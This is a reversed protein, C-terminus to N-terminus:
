LRVRGPLYGASEFGASHTLQNALTIPKDFAPPIQFTTLYRNVDTNLDLKGQEVLQMVATATFTKTVSGVHFLTSDPGVSRKKVVDRYGYGRSFVIRGDKVIVVVAGSVESSSADWSFLSDMVAAVTQPDLPRPSINEGMSSQACTPYIFLLQIAAVGWFCINLPNFMTDGLRGHNTHWYTSKMMIEM